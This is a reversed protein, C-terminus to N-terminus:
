ISSDISETLFTHIHEIKTVLSARKRTWGLGASTIMEVLNGGFKDRTAILYGDYREQGLSVGVWVEICSDSGNPRTSPSIIRKIRTDGMPDKNLAHHVGLFSYIDLGSPLAAEAEEAFKHM